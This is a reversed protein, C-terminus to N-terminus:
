GLCKITFMVHLIITAYQIHSHKGTVNLLQNFYVSQQLQFKEIVHRIYCKYVHLLGLKNDIDM